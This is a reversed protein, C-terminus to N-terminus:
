KAAAAYDPVELTPLAKETFLQIEELLLDKPQQAYNWTLTRRGFPVQYFISLWCAIADEVAGVTLFNHGQKQNRM